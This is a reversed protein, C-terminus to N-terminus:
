LSRIAPQLLHGAPLDYRRRDQRGQGPGPYLMPHDPERDRLELRWQSHFCLAHQQQQRRQELARPGPLHAGNGLRNCLIKSTLAGTNVMALTKGNYIWSYQVTLSRVNKSANVSPNPNAGIACNYVRCSDVLGDVAPVGPTSDDAIGITIGGGCDHVICNKVQIDGTGQSSIGWNTGNRIELNQLTINSAALDIRIVGDGAPSATGQDIVAIGGDGRVTINALGNDGNKNILVTTNSYIGPAVLVTDGNICHDIADQITTYVTGTRQITVGALASSAFAVALVVCAVKGLVKM